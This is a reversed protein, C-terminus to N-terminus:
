SRDKEAERSREVAEMMELFVPDGQFMGIGERWSGPSSEKKPRPVITITTGPQLVLVDEMPKGDILIKQNEPDVKAARLLDGLTAGEPLPFDEREVGTRILTVGNREATSPKASMTTM